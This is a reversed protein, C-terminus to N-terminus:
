KTLIYTMEMFNDAYYRCSYPSGQGKHARVRLDEARVEIKDSCTCVSQQFHHSCIKNHLKKDYLKYNELIQSM